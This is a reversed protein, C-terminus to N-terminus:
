FGPDYPKSGDQLRPPDYASAPICRFSVDLPTDPAGEPRSFHIAELRKAMCAIVTAPAADKSTSVVSRITGSDGVTITFTVIGKITKDGKLGAEYCALLKPYAGEVVKQDAPSLKQASSEPSSSAADRVV